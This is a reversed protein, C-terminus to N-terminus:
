GVRELWGHPHCTVGYAELDKRVRFRQGQETKLWDRMAPLVGGPMDPPSLEPIDVIGDEVVFFGGPPVFRHFHRLAAATTRYEHLTDEVVMCRAGAPVLTDVRDALEPDTIDGSLLVIDQEFDPDAARLTETSRTQALDVSIVRVPDPVRGYGAQTRLRDRFWLASGGLHTGLEIVVQTRSIWLAHEFMRLDEPFKKIRVGAYVDHLHQRERDRWYDLLPRNLTADVPEPLQEGMPTSDNPM